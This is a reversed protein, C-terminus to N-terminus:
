LFQIAVLKTTAGTKETVFAVFRHLTETIADQMWIYIDVYNVMVARSSLIVVADLM